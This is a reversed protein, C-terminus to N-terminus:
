VGPPPEGVGLADVEVKKNTSTVTITVPGSSTSSPGPLIVLQERQTTSGVLSFAHTQGAWAVRISGCSACKTVEVAVEQGHVGAMTLSAGHTKTRLFTNLFYGFLHNQTWAGHLTLARDDLPVTTCATKSYPSTGGADHSRARFCYSTGPTGTFHFLTGTQGTKIMSFSGFTGTTYTAHQVQVDYTIGTGPVSTWSVDFKAKQRQYEASPKLMTPGDAAFEASVDRPNFMEVQCTPIAGRRISTSDCGTWQVFASGADPTATLTVNDDAGFTHSCTSPCDIGAPDSTVHGTGSGTLTVSLTDGTGRSPAAGAGEAVVVDAALLTALAAIV